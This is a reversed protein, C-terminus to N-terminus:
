DTHVEPQMTLRAIGPVGALQELDRLGIHGSVSGGSDYGTQLGAARLSGVVDGEYEISVTVRAAELRAVEGQQENCRAGVLRARWVNYHHRM